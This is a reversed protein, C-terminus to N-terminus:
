DFHEYRARVFNFFGYLMLGIGLAGLLYSGYSSSELFQFAKGTDGAEGANSHLAAKLGLFAIILWVIGRAVYGVKGANLLAASANSHTGMGEVHKKYKESLGYYIQYAGIGAFVLAGIGVLWQGFPQTLLEGALQQNQDGKSGGSGMTMKLASLAVALYGLGSLFYRARKAPKLAKGGDEKRFSQIFRWLSYCVLGATLLGLLWVGGPSDKIFRFVGTSGAASNNAAGLEFAAMFGLVGLIVYVIGKALLGAKAIRAILTSPKGSLSIDM